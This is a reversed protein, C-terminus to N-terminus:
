KRQIWAVQWANGRKSELRVLIKDGEQLYYAGANNVTDADGMDVKGGSVKMKPVVVIEDNQQFNEGPGADAPKVVKIRVAVAPFKGLRVAEVKGTLNRKDKLQAAVAPDVDRKARISGGGEPGSDGLANGLAALEALPDDGEANAVSLCAVFVFAPLFWRM